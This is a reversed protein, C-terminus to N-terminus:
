NWDHGGPHCTRNINRNILCCGRDIHTMLCEQVFSFAHILYSWAYILQRSIMLMGDKHISQNTTINRYTDQATWWSTLEVLNLWAYKRWHILADNTWIIAQRGNPALDNDSGISTQQWNSWQSCMETFNSDFYLLKSMLFNIHFHRKCFPQWKTHTEIYWYILM